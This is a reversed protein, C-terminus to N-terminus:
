LHEKGIQAPKTTKVLNNLCLFRTLDEGFMSEADLGEHRGAGCGPKTPFRVTFDSRHPAHKCAREFVAVRALTM